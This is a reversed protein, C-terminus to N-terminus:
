ETASKVSESKLNKRSGGALISLKGLWGGKEFVTPNFPVVVYFTKSMINTMDVFTKIFESYEAIQIKMLEHTEEKYREQLADLYPAINFRRSHILFQISFDLSNLFNQYQYIIADQENESKLAFNLSSCMLVVRLGEDKLVVANDRITEIALFQQAANSVPM